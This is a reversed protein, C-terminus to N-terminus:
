ETVTIQYTTTLGNWSVTVTVTGVDDATFVHGDYDTTFNAINVDGSQGSHETVDVTLNKATFTEGVKFTTKATTASNIGIGQIEGDYTKFYGYITVATDVTVDQLLKVNYNCGISQGPTVTVTYIRSEGAGLTFDWGGKDGYNEAYLRFSISETGNNSVYLRLTRATDSYTPIRVNYGYVNPNNGDNNPWTGTDSGSTAGAKFTYQTATYNTGEVEVYEAELWTVGSTLYKSFATVIWDDLNNLKIVSTLGCFTVTIRDIGAEWATGDPIDVSYNVLKITYNSGVTATVTLGALDIYDGDIYMTKLANASIKTIQTAGDCCIYGYVTVTAASASLLTLYHDCGSFSGYAEDNGYVFPVVVTKGAGVNVTQGGRIGYNEAQYLIEADVDSENTVCLLMLTRGIAPAYVNVTASGSDNVPRLKILEEPTLNVRTAIIGNELEVHEAAKVNDSNTDSPAFLPMEEAYLATITLASAPMAFNEATYVNLEDDKFGLLTKGASAKIVPLSAGEKLSVTTTIGDALTAGSITLLYKEAESVDVTVTCTLGGYYIEVTNEGSVLTKEQVTVGDTVTYVKGCECTATVSVDSASVSQGEVFDSIAVAAISAASHDIKETAYGCYRCESWHQADDNKIDLTHAKIEGAAGCVTCVYYHGTEDTYHLTETGWVCTETLVHTQDNACVKIHTGNSGATWEEPYDHGIAPTTAVTIETTCEGDSFDKECVTCHWHAEYGSEECTAQKEDIKQASHGLAPVTQQERIVYGCDSCKEGATIGNETCTADSAEGIAVSTHPTEAGSEGCISCARAHGTATKIWEGDFNHAGLEGYENGCRTCVAKNECDATGGTHGLAAVVIDSASIEEKGEADSFYKGCGDDTCRYYAINGNDECTAAVAEVRELKHAPNQCAVLALCAAAVAALLVLLKSLRKM